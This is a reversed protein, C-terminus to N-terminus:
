WGAASCVPRRSFPRAGRKRTQSLRRKPPCERAMSRSSRRRTTFCLVKVHDLSLLRVRPSKVSATRGDHLTFTFAQGAQLPATVVVKVTETPVAGAGPGAPSAPQAAPSTVSSPPASSLRLDPRTYDRPSFRPRRAALSALCGNLRAVKKQETPPPLTATTKRPPLVNGRTRPLSRGPSFFANLNSPLWPSPTLIKFFVHLECSLCDQPGNARKVWSCMGFTAGGRCGM